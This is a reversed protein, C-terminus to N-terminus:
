APCRCMKLMYLDQSAMNKYYDDITDPANYMCTTLYATLNRIPASTGRICEDIYEVHSFDLTLFKDLLEQKSVINGSLFYVPTKRKAVTKATELIMLFTEKLTRDSLLMMKEYELNAKFHSIFINYDDLNSKNYKYVSKNNININNPHLKKCRQFDSYQVEPNKNKEVHSKTEKAAIHATEKPRVKGRNIEACPKEPHEHVAEETKYPAFFQVEAEAPKDCSDYSSSDPLEDAFSEWYSKAFEEPNEVYIKSKSNVNDLEFSINSNCVIDYSLAIICPKHLGQRYKKILAAKELTALLYLATRKCVALKVMIEKVPFIIYVRGDPLRWNNMKSVSYRDLMMLYLNLCNGKIGMTLLEKKVQIYNTM